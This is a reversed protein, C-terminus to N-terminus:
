VSYKFESPEYRFSISAYQANFYSVQGPTYNMQVKQSVSSNAVRGPRFQYNVKGEDLTVSPRTSPIAGYNFEKDFMEYANSIAQDPIPDYNSQINIFENGQSVIRSTGQSVMQRGYSIADDMFAKINKLGAEAFAASQDIRVKPLKTQMELLPKDVSLALTQAGNGSQELVANQTNWSLIAPQSTISIPM